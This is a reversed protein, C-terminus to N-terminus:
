AWHQAVHLPSIAVFSRATTTLAQICENSQANEECRAECSQAGDLEECNMEWCVKRAVREHAVQM